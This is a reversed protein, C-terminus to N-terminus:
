TLVKAKGRIMSANVMNQAPFHNTDIKAKNMTDFRLLGQQLARQIHQKFIRCESTSHTTTNHYKCYAKNKREEPPIPVHNPPLKIRGEKLLFDFLRDSKSVDFDYTGGTEKGWPSSVVILKKGWNWEAAAIEDSYDEDDDEDYIAENSCSIFPNGTDVYASGKQFRTDRRL